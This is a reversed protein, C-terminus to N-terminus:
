DCCVLNECANADGLCLDLRALNLALEAHEPCVALTEACVDRAEQMRQSDSRMRAISLATNCAQTRADQRVDQFDGQTARVQQQRATLAARLHKLTESLQPDSESANEAEPGEDENVESAEAIRARCEYLEATLSLQEASGDAMAQM